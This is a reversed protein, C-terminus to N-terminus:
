HINDLMSTLNICLDTIVSIHHIHKNHLKKWIDQLYQMPLPTIEIQLRTSEAPNNIMFHLNITDM